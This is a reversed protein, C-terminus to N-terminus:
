LWYKIIQIFSSIFYDYGYKVLVDRHSMEDSLEIKKFFDNLLMNKSKKESLVIDAELDHKFSRSNFNTSGVVMWDDIILTKAHLVRPTYEFVQIGHNILGRYFLSNIYPFLKLDSKKPVIVKVDVGRQAAFKLQQLISRDPVFYPNTIWIRREAKNIKRLLDRNFYTRWKLCYNLRVLHDKPSVNSSYVTSLGVINPSIPRQWSSLFAKKLRKVSNGRIKVGCDKWAQDFYYEELHVDSINFSGVFSISNDVIVVKRHNRKNISYLCLFLEILQIFFNKYSWRIQWPLPNYVKVEIGLRRWAKLDNVTVKSSGVGDIILYCRVGREVAKSLEKIVKLGLKQKEFIYSEIKVSFTANKIENLVSSFYDDASTFLTDRYAENDVSNKVISEEQQFYDM